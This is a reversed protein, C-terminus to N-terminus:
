NKIRKRINENQTAKTFKKKTLRYIHEVLGERPLWTSPKGRAELLSILFLWPFDISSESDVRLGLNPNIKTPHSFSSPWNKPNM